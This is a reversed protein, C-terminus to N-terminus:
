SQLHGVVILHDDDVHGVGGVGDPPGDACVGGDHVGGAFDDSELRLLRQLYEVDLHLGLHLRVRHDVIHDEPLPYRLVHDGQHGFGRHIVPAHLPVGLWDLDKVPM